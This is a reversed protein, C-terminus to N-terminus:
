DQVWVVGTALTAPSDDALTATVTYTYKPTGLSLAAQGLATPLGTSAVPLPDADSIASGGIIKTTPM